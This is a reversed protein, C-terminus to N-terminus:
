IKGGTKPLQGNMAFVFDQDHWKTNLIWVPYFSTVITEAGALCPLLFLFSLIICFVKKM